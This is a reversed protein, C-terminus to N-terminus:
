HAGLTLQPLELPSHLEKSGSPRPRVGRTFRSHLGWIGTSVPSLCPTEPCLGLHPRNARCHRSLLGWSERAVRISIASGQALVLPERLEEDYSWFRAVVRSFGRPEGDHHSSAREQQLTDLSIGRERKFNLATSSM